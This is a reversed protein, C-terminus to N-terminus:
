LYEVTQQWDLSTDAYYWVSQQEGYEPSTWTTIYAM